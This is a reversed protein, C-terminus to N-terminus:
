SNQRASGQGILWWFQILSVVSAPNFSLSATLGLLLVINRTNNHFIFGRFTNLILYILILFGIIGGQVLFDLFINHASDVYYGPLHNGIRVNAEHLAYEVNGFGVGILPSKSAASLSSQWIESRNEYLNGQIYFPIALSCVILLISIITPFFSRGYFARVLYLFLLQIGFAIIGSRSGTILLIICIIIVGIFGIIWYKRNNPKPFFLFPWLFLVTAALANPEGLTGIPRDAGVGIFLISLIFQIVLVAFVVWPKIRNEISIKSTLFALTMLFWLLLTGQLRFQNGFLVTQTQNFFLHIISLIFLVALGLLWIRNINKHKISDSSIVNFVLLISIILEAVIVKSGEFSGPGM